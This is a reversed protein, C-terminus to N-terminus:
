HLEPTDLSLGLAAEESSLAQNYVRGEAAAHNRRRQTQKAPNARRVRCWYNADPCSTASNEM